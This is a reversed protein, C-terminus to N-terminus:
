RRTRRPIALEHVVVGDAGKVVVRLETASAGVQAVQDQGVVLLHYAHPVDPGPPTYSFKHNHGAIVLDVGADNALQIWRANGTALWGWRPQHMVAVRFPASGVRADTRVHAALWEFEADRYPTTQNLRAYVNTDDPKDEGSDLVLLHVPGADRAFYFRGEIAPLYGFLERAFPGRLEHNGRAFMLPKTGALAATTPTLWNRFLQDESDIWHFADGTHVLFDTTPWDILKMLRNIRGVDEHTDTM